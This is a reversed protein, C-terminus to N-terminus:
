PTSILVLRSHLKTSVPIPTLPYLYISCQTITLYMCHGDKVSKLEAFELMAGTSSHIENMGRYQILRLEGSANYESTSLSRLM